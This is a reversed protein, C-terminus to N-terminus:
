PFRSLHWGASNSPREPSRRRFEQRYVRACSFTLPSEAAKLATCPPANSEREADRKRTDQRKDFEVKGQCIGLAVKVKNNKWYFSLPIPRLGQRREGRRTQPTREQPPSNAPLGRPTIITPQRAFVRRHPRQAALTRRERRPCLRGSDPRPRGALSKVETGRLAIGAEYTALVHYEHRAKSNTLIDALRLEPASAASPGPTEPATEEAHEWGLKDETLETLAIDAAGM